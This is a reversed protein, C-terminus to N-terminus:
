VYKKEHHEKIAKNTWNPLGKKISCNICIIYDKLKKGEFDDNDCNGCCKLQDIIKKCNENM